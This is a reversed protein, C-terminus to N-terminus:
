IERPNFKAPIVNRTSKIERMVINSIERPNLKACQRNELKERPNLKACSLIRCKAFSSFISKECPNLKAFSLIRCKAIQVKRQHLSLM